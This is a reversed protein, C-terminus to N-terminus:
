SKKKVKYPAVRNLIERREKCGCDEKGFLNALKESVKDLGLFHTLKYVDDGLGRSQFSTETYKKVKEGQM